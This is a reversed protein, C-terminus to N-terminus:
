EGALHKEIAQDLDDQLKIACHAQCEALWAMDEPTRATKPLVNILELSDSNPRRRIMAGATDENPVNKELLPALTEAPLGDHAIALPTSIRILTGDEDTSMSLDQRGNIRVWLVDEFPELDTGLRTSLAEAYEAFSAAM